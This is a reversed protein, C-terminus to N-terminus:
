VVGLLGFMANVFHRTEYIGIPSIRTTLQAVVDFFGGYYELNKYTLVNQDRFLSTYWRIIYEGYSSQLYEDWSIGYDLFTCLIAFLYFLILFCSAAKWRQALVAKEEAVEKITTSCSM